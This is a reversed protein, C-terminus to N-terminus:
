SSQKAADVAQQAPKAANQAVQAASKVHAHAVLSDGGVMVGIIGNVVLLTTNSMHYGALVQGLDIVLALVTMWLRRDHLAKMWHWHSMKELM